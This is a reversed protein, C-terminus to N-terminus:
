RDECNLHRTAKYNQKEPFMLNPALHDILSVVGSTVTSTDWYIAYNTGFKDTFTLLQETSIYHYISGAIQAVMTSLEVM